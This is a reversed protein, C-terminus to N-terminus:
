VQGSMRRELRDTVEEDLLSMALNLDTKTWSVQQLM